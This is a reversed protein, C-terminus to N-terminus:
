YKRSKKTDVEVHQIKFIVRVTESRHDVKAPVFPAYDPDDKLAKDLANVTKWDDTPEVVEAIQALGNGFVDAVVVVEEDKMKGRVFSKTLAVLAGSPNVSPTANSIPLAEPYEDKSLSNSNFKPNVNALLISSKNNANFAIEDGRLNNPISSLLTWLLSFGLILSAITGIGYPMLRMQIWNQVNDSFIFIPATENTQLESAVSKRVKNLLEASVEPRSLLRLNNRLAQFDSLKQRCLPCQALHEDLAFREEANLSDDLYLPLNFQLNECFM